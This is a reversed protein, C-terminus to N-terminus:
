GRGPDVPPETGSWRRLVAGLRPLFACSLAAALLWGALVDTPWHVGLYVRGVGVGVAWLGPLACAALRTWWRRRCRPYLAATLAVAVLAATASHGSPLSAGGAVTAWDARPPRPRALVTALAVRAAESLALALVGLLAGRWWLLRTGSALAGVLAALAYPPAGTGTLSLDRAAATWGASRRGLAWRHLATDVPFPSGHRAAVAVVLAALM